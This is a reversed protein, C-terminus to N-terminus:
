FLCSFIPVFTIKLNWTSIHIWVHMYLMDIFNNKVSLKLWITYRMCWTQHNLNKQVQVPQCCPWMLDMFSIPWFTWPQSSIQILILTWYWIFKSFCILQKFRRSICHYRFIIEILFKWKLFVHDIWSFDYTYSDSVYM